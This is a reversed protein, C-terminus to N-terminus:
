KGFDEELIGYFYNDLWEGRIPLKKRKMGERIMGVKEMTKASAINEVACGAEVRHLKLDHFCFELLRHLAESAYGRRWYDKHIKFWVESSRYTEKGPKLGILGIFQSDEKRVLSFVFFHHPNEDKQKFWDNLVNETTELSDPIGLTNYRDTEPLSNLEHISLLDTQSVEKLRLRSSYLTHM